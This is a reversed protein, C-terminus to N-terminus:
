GARGVGTISDRSGITKLQLPPLSLASV